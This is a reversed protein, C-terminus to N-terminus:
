VNSLGPPLAAFNSLMGLQATAMSYLQQLKLYEKRYQEVQQEIRSQLQQIRQALTQARQSVLRWQTSLTGTSGVVDRLLEQIHEGFGGPSTFLAAVRESGTILEQELRSRDSLKLTGDQGITIGIDRLVRLPGNGLQQSALARLESLLQRVAPYSKLAGKAASSLEKLAANYRDLISQLYSAAKDLDVTTTLTIDPDTPQQARLLTVTVGPLVDALTNSERVVTIGNIRLQANLGSVRGLQYGASTETLTARNEPDAFMGASWGLAALLGDTDVFRIAASAGTQKATLTLRATTATDTIVTAVVGISATTNIAAAIKRLATETDETGDLAVAVTATTGAATLEFRYLGSRGFPAARTLRDSALVDNRALRDVHVLSSGLVADTQATASLIDPASSQTKRTVFNREAGPATLTRATFLLEELTTRLSALLKQQDQLQQQRQKLADLPRSLQARYAALLQELPPNQQSAALLSTIDPAM